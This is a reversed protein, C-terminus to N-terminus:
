NPWQKSGEAFGGDGNGYGVAFGKRQDKGSAELSAIAGFADGGALGCRRHDKEFQQGDGDGREREHEIQMPNFM